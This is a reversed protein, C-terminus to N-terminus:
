ESLYAPQRLEEESMKEEESLDDQDENDDGGGVRQTQRPDPGTEAYGYDEVCRRHCFPQVRGQRASQWQAVAERTEVSAQKGEQQPVALRAM